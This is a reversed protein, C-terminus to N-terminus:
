FNESGGLLEDLLRMIIAREMKLGDLLEILSCAEWKEEVAVAIIVEECSIYFNETRNRISTLAWVERIDKMLQKGEKIVVGFNQKAAVTIKAKSFIKKLVEMRQIRKMILQLLTKM